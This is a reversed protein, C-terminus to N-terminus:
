GLVDGRHVGHQELPADRTAQREHWSGQVLWVNLCKLDDPEGRLEGHGSLMGNYLGIPRQRNGVTQVRSVMGHPQCKQLQRSAFIGTAAAGTSSASAYSTSGAFVPM